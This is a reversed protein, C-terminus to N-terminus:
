MQTAKGSRIKKWLATNTTLLVFPIWDSGTMGDYHGLREHIPNSQISHSFLRHNYRLVLLLFPAIQQTPDLSLLSYIITPRLLVLYTYVLLPNVLKPTRQSIILSLPLNIPVRYYIFLTTPLTIHTYLIPILTPHTHTPVVM